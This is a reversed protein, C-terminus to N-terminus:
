GICSPPGEPPYTWRERVQHNVAIARWENYIAVLNPCDGLIEAAQGQIYWCEFRLDSTPVDLLTQLTTCRRLARQSEEFKGQLFYEMGLRYWGEYWSPARVTVEQCYEVARERERMISSLECLRLRAKINNPQRTLVAFYSVTASDSDGLLLAYQAREFHLTLLRDDLELARDVAALADSYRGVDRYSIALARLADVLAPRSAASAVASESESLALDYSGVSDLALALATRAIASSPAEQELAKRAIEAAEAPRDGAQLALAHVAMVDRDFPSRAMMASTFTLARQRDAALNYESYSRYILARTLIYLANLDDERVTLAQQAWAVAGSLDGQDFASQAAAVESGFPINPQIRDSLRSYWLGIVTGAGALLLSTLVFSFCGISRRQRRFTLNSRSRHLRM